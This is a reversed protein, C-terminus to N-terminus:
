EYSIQPFLKQRKAQLNESLALLVELEQKDFNMIKLRMVIDDIDDPLQQVEHMKLKQDNDDDKKGALGTAVDVSTVNPVREARKNSNGIGDINITHAAEDGSLIAEKEREIIKRERRLSKADTGHYNLGKRLASLDVLKPTKQQIADVLNPKMKHEKDNWEAKKAL